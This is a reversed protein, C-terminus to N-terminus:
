EGAGSGYPELGDLFQRAEARIAERDEADIRKLGLVAPGFRRNSRLTAEHEILLNWYLFNFPCAEPGTRTTHRFRCVKCFDSMRNIYNASAVYPKTATQGGDAHLGMGIVNPLVVWDHSDVYFTLFWDAVAAPDVGALLCFNCVIMLREIHHTYGSDLLRSVVSRICHLETGANWFMRPMPRRAEWANATRLGPMQRRYQWYIFERWGVIQRIFGEVSSLPAHGARYRAEAAGAMALPELLGINMYPSLVSHFLVGEEASMADEFRGFAPLRRDLFDDFAAGADRRTVALGFGDTTGVGDGFRGADVDRVAEATIADPEFRPPPPPEVGDRLPERNERDYNWSGGTPAGDPEILLEYHKRLARYFHEMLYLKGPVPDPRPNFREVLFMSNPLVEAPVGLDDSMAGLQWRRVAHETMEMALLRAPRRRKLHRALGTRTDDAAVLDVDFGENRLEEAFHRGASLLLVQRKRHYPLRAMWTRSEVLVVRVGERGVEAEARALAPHDRTLQDPAIWVSLRNRSMM